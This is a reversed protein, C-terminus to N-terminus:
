KYCRGIVLVGYVHWFHDKWTYCRVGLSFIWSLLYFSDSECSLFNHGEEEGHLPEDDSQGAEAMGVVM